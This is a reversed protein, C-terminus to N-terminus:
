IRVVHGHADYQTRTIAGLPNSAQTCQGQANFQYQWRAGRSDTAANCLPNGGVAWEFTYHYTPQGAVPAGWQALCPTNGAHGPQTAWEFCIPYGSKLTRQTLLNASNYQYHESHGTADTVCVLQGAPNYQYQVLTIHNLLPNNANGQRPVQVISSLLGQANYHLLWTAQNSQVEELQGQANRKFVLANGFADVMRHLALAQGEFEIAMGLGSSHTLTYSHEGTRCLTLQESHNTCAQGIHLPEFYVTRGEGDLYHLQEGVAVISQAVPHAWGAGLGTNFGQEALSSRYTRQMALDVTGPLACDHLQLLEEGNFMSIPEGATTSNNVKQASAGTSSKHNSQARSNTPRAASSQGQKTPAAPAPGTRARGGQARASASPLARLKSAQAKDMNRAVNALHALAKRTFPGIRAAQSGVRAAGAAVSGGMTALALAVEIGVVAVVGSINRIRRLHPVSETYGDLFEMLGVRLLPDSGIRQLMRMGEAISACLEAASNYLGIGAQMLMHKMQEFNSNVVKVFADCSAKFANASVEITLKLLQWLGELANMLGAGAGQGVAVAEAWLEQLRSKSKFELNELDHERWRSLLVNAMEVLASNREHEATGPATHLLAHQSAWYISNPNRLDSELGRALPLKVVQLAGTFVANRRRENLTVTWSPEYLDGEVLGFHKLVKCDVHDATRSRPMGFDLLMALETDNISERHLVLWPPLETRKDFFVWYHASYRIGLAPKVGQGFVPIVSFDM